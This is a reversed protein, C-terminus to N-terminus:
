SIQTYITIALLIINIHTLTEIINENINLKSLISIIIILAINSLYSLLFIKQKTTKQKNKESKFNEMRAM